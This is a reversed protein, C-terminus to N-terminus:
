IAVGIGVFGRIGIGGFRYNLFRGDRPTFKPGADLGYILGLGRDSFPRFGAKGFGVSIEHTRFDYSFSGNLDLLFPKTYAQFSLTPDIQPTKLNNQYSNEPLSKLQNQLSDLQDQTQEYKQTINAFHPTQSRIKRYVLENVDITSKIVQLALKGEEDRGEFFSLFRKRNIRIRDGKDTIAVIGSLNPNSRLDEPLIFDLTRFNYRAPINAFLSNIISQSMEHLNDHLTKRDEYTLQANQVSEALSGLNQLCTDLQATMQSKSALNPDAARLGDGLRLSGGLGVLVNFNIDTKQAEFTKDGSDTSAVCYQHHAPIFFTKGNVGSVNSSKKLPSIEPSIDTCYSALTHTPPNPPQSPIAWACGACLLRCFLLFLGCVINDRVTVTFQRKTIKKKCYKKYYKNMEKECPYFVYRQYEISM